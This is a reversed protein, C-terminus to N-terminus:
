LKKNKDLQDYMICLQLHFERKVEDDIYESDFCYSALAMIEDYSKSASKESKISELLEFFM